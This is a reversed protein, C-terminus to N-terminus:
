QIVVVDALPRATFPILHVAVAVHRMPSRQNFALEDCTWVATRQPRVFIRIMVSVLGMGHGLLVDCDLDWFPIFRRPFKSLGGGSFNNGISITGSM